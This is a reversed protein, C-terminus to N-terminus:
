KSLSPRWGLALSIIKNNEKATHFVLEHNLHSWVKGLELGLAALSETPAPEIGM